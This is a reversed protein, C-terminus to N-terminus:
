EFFFVEFFDCLLISCVTNNKRLYPQDSWILCYSLLTHTLVITNPRPVSPTCLYTWLYIFFHYSFCSTVSTFSHKKLTEKSLKKLRPCTSKGAFDLHHLPGQCGGGGGLEARPKSRPQGSPWGNCWRRLCRSMVWWRLWLLGVTPQRHSAAPKNRLPPYSIASLMSPISVILSAFKPLLRVFCLM